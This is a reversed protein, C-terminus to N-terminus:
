DNLDSEVLVCAGASKDGLYSTGWGFADFSKRDGERIRCGRGLVGMREM